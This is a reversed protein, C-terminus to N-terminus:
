GAVPHQAFKIGVLLGPASQMGTDIVGVQWTVQNLRSLNQSRQGRM